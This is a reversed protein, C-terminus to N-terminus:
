YTSYRQTNHNFKAKVWGEKGWQSRQKLAVIGAESFPGNDDDSSDRKASRPRWMALANAFDQRITSHGKLDRLQPVREDRSIRHNGKGSDADNPHNIIIIHGETRVILEQMMQIMRDKISWQDQGRGCMFDIHDILVLKVGLRTFCYGLTERMAEPEVTGYKDFL